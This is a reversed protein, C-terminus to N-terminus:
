ILMANKTIFKEKGSKPFIDSSEAFDNLCVLSINGYDVTNTIAGGAGFRPANAFEIEDINIHGWGGIENDVIKIKAKKNKFKEVNWNQWRLEELNIGRSKKVEKGDILLAIYVNEGGGGGIMFNIYNDKVTFEPSTLTGITKDGSHMTNVYGKGSFGFVTTQGELHNETTPKGGQAKGESIWKGWDNNEFNEFTKSIIKVKKKEKAPVVTQFM